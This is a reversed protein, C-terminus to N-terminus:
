NEEIFPGYKNNEEGCHLCVPRHASLLKDCNPCTWRKEQEQIFVELGKEKIQKLNALMSMGYKGRYRKDLNKLRTCPYSECKYCFGSKTKALKECHIITCNRCTQMKTPDTVRCGPCKRKERQYGLCLFCNMGCPAIEVPTKM